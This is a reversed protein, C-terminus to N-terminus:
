GNVVVDRYSRPEVDHGAHDQGCPQSSQEDDDGNMSSSTGQTEKIHSDSSSADSDKAHKTIAAAESNQKRTGIFKQKRTCITNDNSLVFFPNQM